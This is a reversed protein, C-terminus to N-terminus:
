VFYQVEVGGRSSQGISKDTRWSSPAEVRCSCPRPSNNAGRCTVQQAAVLDTMLFVPHFWHPVIPRWYSRRLYRTLSVTAHRYDNRGQQWVIDNLDDVPFKL